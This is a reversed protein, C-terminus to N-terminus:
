SFLIKLNDKVLRPIMGGIESPCLRYYRFTNRIAQQLTEIKFQWSSKAQHHLRGFNGGEFIGKMIKHQWKRDINSLPLPFEGEPLGLCDTLITGFACCADFLDLDSLIELLREKDIKDQYHHLVMAWDCLQRLAVGERMFHFFLHIFVYAANMTPSLTRVKVGDIEVYYPEQWEKEVLNDWVKQHRKLAYTRLSTHLEFPVSAHKFEIEKEIMKDPLNVSYLREIVEKVESYANHILFDIDGAMRVEPKPYLIRYTQGKVVLYDVNNEDFMRVMEKLEKDVLANKQKIKETKAYAEFTQRKDYQGKVSHQSIADYALGFVTQEKALNMLEAFEEKSVESQLAEGWLASRLVLLLKEITTM